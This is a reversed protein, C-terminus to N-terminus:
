SARQWSARRRSSDGGSSHSVNPADSTFSLLFAALAPRRSVYSKQCTPLCSAGAGQAHGTDLRLAKVATFLGLASFARPTTPADADCGSLFSTCSSHHSRCRHARGGFFRNCSSRRRRWRHARGSLFGICSSRRRIWRHARDCLFGICSSRRRSWRHARGGSFRAPM